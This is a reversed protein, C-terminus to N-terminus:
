AAGVFGRWLLRVVWALLGQSARLPLHYIAGLTLATAFATDTHLPPAGRQGTKVPNVWGTVAQEDVWLTLSGRRVLATNEEKGNRVRYGRKGPRPTTKKHKV